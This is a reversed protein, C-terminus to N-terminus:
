ISVPQRFRKKRRSKRILVSQDSEMDYASAHGSISQNADNMDDAKTEVNETMSSVQTTANNGTPEPHVVHELHETAMSSGNINGPCHKHLHDESGCTYCRRYSPPKPCQVICHQDSGCRYCKPPQGAYRVYLPLMYQGIKVSTPFTGKPEMVTFIRVGTEITPAFSYTQRRVGVVMGYSSLLSKMVGDPMEYPMKVDVYAPPQREGTITHCTYNNNQIDIGCVLVNDRTTEDSFTLQWINKGTQTM